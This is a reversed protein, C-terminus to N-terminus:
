AAAYAVAARVDDAQLYPYEEVIEASTMGAALL